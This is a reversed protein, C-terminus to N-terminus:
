APLTATIDVEVLQGPFGLQAVGLLTAASTFAVASVSATLASWVAALDERDGSAVYVVARVVDSPMAGVSALATAINRAVQESQAIVDGPGVLVGDADLPCQGALHVTAGAPVVTVHHYGPARHLGPPNSREIM